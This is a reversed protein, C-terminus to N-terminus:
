AALREMVRSAVETEVDMGRDLAAQLSLRLPPWDIPLEASQSEAVLLYCWAIDFAARADKDALTRSVSSEFGAAARRARDVDTAWGLLQGLALIRDHEDSDDISPVFYDGQGLIAEAIAGEDFWRTFRANMRYM